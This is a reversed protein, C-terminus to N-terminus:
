PCGGPAAFRRPKGDAGPEDDERRAGVEAIARCLAQGLKPDVHIGRSGSRYSFMLHRSRAASPRNPDIPEIEVHVDQGGVDFTLRPGLETSARVLRAGPVVEDGPGAPAVLALIHSQLTM